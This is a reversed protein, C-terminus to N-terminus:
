NDSSSELDVDGWKGTKVGSDYGGQASTDVEPALTPSADAHDGAQRQELAAGEATNPGPQPGVDVAERKVTQTPTAGEVKVAQRVPGAPPVIPTEEPETKPAISGAKGPQPNPGCADEDPARRADELAQAYERETVNFRQLVGWIMLRRCGQLKTNLTEFAAARYTQGTMSWAAKLWLKLEEEDDESPWKEAQAQTEAKKRDVIVGEHTRCEGTLNMPNFQQKMAEYERVRAKHGETNLAAKLHPKLLNVKYYEAETEKTGVLANLQRQTTSRMPGVASAWSTVADWWSVHESEMRKMNDTSANFDWILLPIKEQSGREDQIKAIQQWM